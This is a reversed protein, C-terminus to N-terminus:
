PAIYELYVKIKGADLGGGGVTVTPPSSLTALSYKVTSKVSVVAGDEAAVIGASEVFLDATSGDGVTVTAEDMEDTDVMATEVIAFGDLLVVGEEIENAVDFNRMVYDGAEGGDLEADYEYCLFKRVREFRQLGM